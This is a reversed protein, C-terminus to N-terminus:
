DAEVEDFLSMQGEPSSPPVAQSAQYPLPGLNSDQIAWESLGREPRTKEQLPAQASPGNAERPGSIPRIQSRARRIEEEASVGAESDLEDRRRSSGRPAFARSRVACSGASDAPHCRGGIAGLEGEGRARVKFCPELLVM